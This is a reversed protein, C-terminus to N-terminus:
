PRPRDPAPSAAEAYRTLVVIRDEPRFTWTQTGSPNLYVGGGPGDAERHLRVGLAIEGAAEAHQQVDRFTAPRGALGYDGVARFFIEAGGPGFLEGFVSTLEQRLAAHALMHSLVVPSIIVEGPRRRFLRANAPDILEVLVAPDRADEPLLARLLVYGLITRADAEEGSDLWDSGLLIVNDYGAPGARELDARVTYDGELHRVRVREGPVDLRRMAAAREAAPVVSLVDIEFSEGPYSAFEQILVRVKHSWGLMLVRRQPQVAMTMRRAPATPAPGAAAALATAAPVAAEYRRAILVFRDEPEPTFTPPPNLLPRFGSGEPRVVGLLVAEPFAYRLVGFPRGALEPHTRVYIENGHEYSLLEAYVHSLGPHRANQAILRSIFADGAILELPGDYARRAIPIKQTDFIEAVVVPVRGARYHGHRAISMLTKVVRTDTAEAGGLAFDAGPLLIAAAQEFAVRRLHEIRMSSGSRFVVQRPPRAPGLQDRLEQYLGADVREALIVIRLRRAGRRSLFRRVRGESLMLERVIPGTRNTWGLILIHDRVAIPTLGSELRRMTRSLGQTLIAILSGMFLVYGLVTVVTSIVRLTTGEDDGLYGPDTLRLFAWWVAAGPHAFADTLGWALLGGGLAVLVILGAIVLLQYPAGRQILRELAVTLRDALVPM